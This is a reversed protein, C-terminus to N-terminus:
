QLLRRLAALDTTPAKCAQGECVYAAARGAIPKHGSTWPALDATAPNARLLVTRPHFGTQAAVIMADAEAGTGAVVVERTPGLALDLAMLLMPFAHPYDPVIAGHAAIARDALDRWLTDGTLLSLRHLCWATTANGSPLAGDTADRKRAGLTEGDTPTTFWGGDPHAFDRQVQRALDLAADLWRPALTAAHLELLGWLLYAHDDLFAHADVVGHHFRHRLRGDPRRMAKLLFSAAGEAAATYRPEQLATGAKAFAAIALGNWDTLVKDDLLPRVRKSRMALLKARLPAAWAEDTATLAAGLHLINAGTRKHTAEDLYNGETTTSYLAGFRVADKGLSAALEAQTWVYFKGEEGESDADEACRFGGEPDALDRLVYDLTSRATSAFDTRGTVQHAETYAMALMAQDYLMKEFHPTLWERDTSYRHFGGGVHDRVGGLQMAELTTEVMRPTAPKPARNNARLLFLLNHPSPFKPAGGFGGHKPDFRKAFAAVAETLIGADLDAAPSANVGGVQEDGHAHAEGRVHQLIHEAQAELEARKGTWAETIRPVLDLMGVRGHRSEKPFYTGAFFARKTHDLIATLPWGGHGTMQQCVAMYAEDVDPREERDVKVCVFAENLLRAVADDEFSEHAMVHCWHCTAYGISLFVPVDRRKAEAFAADGWPWWAVPNQAHQRLYPSPESALRNTPTGPKSAAM